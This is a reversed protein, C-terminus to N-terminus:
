SVAKESSYKNILFMKGGINLCLSFEDQKKM